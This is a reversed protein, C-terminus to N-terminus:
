RQFARLLSANILELRAMVLQEDGFSPGYSVVQQMAPHRREQRVAWCWFGIIATYSLAAFLSVVARAPHHSSKLNYAVWAVAFQFLAGVLLGVVLYQLLASTRVRFWWLFALLGLLLGAHVMRISGRMLYLWNSIWMLPNSDAMGALAVFACVACLLGGGLWPILRWAFRRLGSYREVARDYLELIFLFLVAWSAAEFSWFVIFYKLDSSAFALAVPVNKLLQWACFLTLFPYSRYLGSRCVEWLLLLEAAVAGMWIFVQIQQIDVRERIFICM